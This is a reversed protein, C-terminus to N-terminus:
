SLRPLFRLSYIAKIVHCFNCRGGVNGSVSLFNIQWFSLSWVNTLSEETPLLFCIVPGWRISRCCCDRFGTVVDAAGRCAKSGIDYWSYCQPRLRCGRTEDVWLHPWASERFYVGCLENSVGRGLNCRCHLAQQGSLVNVTIYIVLAVHFVLKSM